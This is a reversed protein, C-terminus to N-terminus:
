EESIDKGGDTVVDYIAALDLANETNGHSLETLVTERLTKAELKTPKGDPV